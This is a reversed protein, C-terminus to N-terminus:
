LELRYGRTVREARSIPHMPQERIRYTVPEVRDSRLFKLSFKQINAVNFGYNFAVKGECFHEYFHLATRGLISTPGRGVHRFSKETMTDGIQNAILQKGDDVFPVVYGTYHGVLAGDATWALSIRERGWPDHQFKWRWHELSRSAHFSRAFLDLIQQEDGPAYGRILVDVPM